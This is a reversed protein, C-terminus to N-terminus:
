PLFSTAQSHAACAIGAGLNKQCFDPTLAAKPPLTKGITAM